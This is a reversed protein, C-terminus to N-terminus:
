FIVVASSPRQRHEIRADDQPHVPDEDERQTAAKRKASRQEQALAAIPRPPASRRAESGPVSM